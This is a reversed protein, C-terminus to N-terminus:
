HRPGGPANDLEALLADACEVAWSTEAICEPNAAQGAMVQGAFYYRWYERSYGTGNWVADAIRTAVDLAEPGSENPKDSM